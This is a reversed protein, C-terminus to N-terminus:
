TLEFVITIELTLADSSLSSPPRPYPAGSKVAFVAADNFVQFPCTETVTVEGLGGDAMIAFRVTVRGQLQRRMAMPPYKKRSEIRQRVMQYYIKGSGHDAQEFPLSAAQQFRPVSAPLASAAVAEVLPSAAAAPENM